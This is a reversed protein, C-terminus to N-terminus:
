RLVTLSYEVLAIHCIFTLTRPVAMCRTVSIACLCTVPNTSLDAQVQILHGQTNGRVEPQLIPSAGTEKLVPTEGRTDMDQGLHCIKKVICAM